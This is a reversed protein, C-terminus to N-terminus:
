KAPPLFNLLKEFLPDSDSIFNASGRITPDMEFLKNLLDQKSEAEIPVWGISYGDEKVMIAARETFENFKAKNSFLTVIEGVTTRLSFFSSDEPNSSNIILHIWFQM